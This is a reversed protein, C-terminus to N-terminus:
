RGRASIAVRVPSVEAPPAVPASRALALAPEAVARAPAGCAPNITPVAGASPAARGFDSVIPATHLASAWSNGSM